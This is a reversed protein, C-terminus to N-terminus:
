SRTRAGRGRLMGAALGACALAVLPPSLEPVRGPIRTQAWELMALLLTAAAAWGLARGALVHGAAVVTTAFWGFYAALQIGPVASGHLLALRWRFPQSPGYGPELQFAFIALLAATLALLARPRPGLPALLLMVLAAAPLPAVLEPAPPDGSPLLLRLASVGLALAGFPLLARWPRRMGLGLTLGLALWGGGWAALKWPDLQASGLRTWTAQLTRQAMAADLVPVWPATQAITWALAALTAVALVRGETARADARAVSSWAPSLARGAFWGLTTGLTNSLLDWASSVRGSLCAQATEMSLSLLAGAGIALLGARWPVGAPRTRNAPHRHSWAFALAAGLLLYAFVNGLLDAGDSLAGRRLLADAFRGCDITGRRAVSTYVIGAVLAGV